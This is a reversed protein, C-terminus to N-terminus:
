SRSMEAAASCHRADSFTSFFRAPAPGRRHISASTTGPARNGGYLIIPFAIIAITTTTTIVVHYFYSVVVIIFIIHRHHYSYHRADAEVCEIGAEACSRSAHLRRRRRRRGAAAASLPLLLLLVLPLFLLPPPPPPLLLLQQQPPLVLRSM